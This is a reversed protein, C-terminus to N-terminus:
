RPHSYSASCCQISTLISTRSNNKIEFSITKLVEINFFLCNSSNEISIKTQILSMRKKNKTQQM